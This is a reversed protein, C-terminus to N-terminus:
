GAKEWEGVPMGLDSMRNVVMCKICGEVEQRARERSRLQSGTLQKIRFMTTEGLSRRHYNTSEKWLKRGEDGGGLEIIKEIDENRKILAPDKTQKDIVAGKPPPIISKAGKAQVARRFEKGDYAGDGFVRKINQPAKKMLKVGIQGDGTGNGNTTLQALIIQGSDPDMGVHLKRWTRRKSTGHKRVKWEGEGYVKLGTSDFVIDTPNKKSLKQLKKDLLAARRCIQSYSPIQIKLGMILVLSALFGVLARLPLHFVTRVLLACLIADDSYLHPRGKKGKREKSNWKNIVDDSFWFNINGRQTLAKNYASWNKIKYRKM